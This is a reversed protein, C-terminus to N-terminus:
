YYNSHIFLLCVEAESCEIRVKIKQIPDVPSIASFVELLCMGSLIWLRAASFQMKKIFNNYEVETKYEKISYLNTKIHSIEKATDYIANIMTEQHDVKHSVYSRCSESEISENLEDLSNFDSPLLSSFCFEVLKM